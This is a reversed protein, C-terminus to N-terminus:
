AANEVIGCRPRELRRFRFARPATGARRRGGDDGSRHGAHRLRVASRCTRRRVRLGGALGRAAADRRRSKGEAARAGHGRSLRASAAARRVSRHQRDGQGQAARSQHASRSTRTDVDPRDGSAERFQDVIADKIRLRPTNRIRSARRAASPMSRSRRATQRSAREVRDGQRRRLASRRRRGRYEAIPMFVRSALRSWLCARYGAELGGRFYVGALAEHVDSAGLSKLEDVLLYELGKPCSAFFDRVDSSANCSNRSCRRSSIWM